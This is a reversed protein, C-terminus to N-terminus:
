PAPPVSDDEVPPTPVEIVIDGPPKDATPKPAADASPTPKVTKSKNTGWPKGGLKPPPKNVVPTAFSASLDPVVMVPPPDPITVASASPLADPEPPLINSQLVVFAVGGTVM